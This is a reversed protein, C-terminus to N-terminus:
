YGEAQRDWNIQNKRLYYDVLNEGLLDYAAVFIYGLFAKLQSKFARTDTFTYSSRWPRNKLENMALGLHHIAMHFAGVHTLRSQPIKPPKDIGAMLALNVSFCIVDVVEMKGENEFDTSLAERVESIEEVVRWAASKLREQDFRCNLDVPFDSRNFNFGNLKEKVLAKRLFKKQEEFIINLM